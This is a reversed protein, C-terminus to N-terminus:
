KGLFHTHIDEACEYAGTSFRQKYMLLRPYNNVFVNGNDVDEAIQHCIQMSETVFLQIIKDTYADMYSANESRDIEMIHIAHAKAIEVLEKMQKNM